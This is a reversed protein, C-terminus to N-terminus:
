SNTNFALGRRKEFWHNAVFPSLVTLFLSAGLGIIFGWIIMLQWAQQMLLTLPDRIVLIIMAALMMKKLGIVELLAAM